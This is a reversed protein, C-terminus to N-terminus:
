LYRASNPAWRDAWPRAQELQYALQLLLADQGRPAMFHSGVPLGGATWALPVSMACQGVLNALPTYSVYALVDQYMPAFPAVPSQEGIRAPPTSLVPSLLVDCDGFIRPDRGLANLWELSAAVREPTREDGMAALGLTWPELVLEPDLGRARARDRESKAFQTWLSMFHDMMLAGDFPFRWPEVRHGLDELLAGTATVAAAVEAHPARGFHDAVILGVRLPRTLPESVLGVADAGPNEYISLMLASDRVSRSLALKVSLGEPLASGSGRVRGMGPKLGFVGCNSSPIRISGGGDSGSAVPLMGAAVAAGAGGSSGGPSHALSWPNRTPGTLVSETSGILGFEPTATKGIVNMGAARCASVTVDDESPVFGRYLRSGMQMPMGAVAALDKVLYPVGFLPGVPAGGGALQETQLRARDMARQYDHAVVANIVPNVREIREITAELLEVPSLEGRRILAAQATADLDLPVAESATAQGRVAASSCAGLGLGASVSGVAAVFGRRTVGASGVGVAEVGSDADGSQAM